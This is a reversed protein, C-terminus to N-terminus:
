DPVRGKVANAFAEYSISGNASIPLHGRLRAKLREIEPPSMKRIALGAAGEPVRYSDWFEDFSSYAVPIRIVSTEVSQLSARAWLAQLADRRSIGTGPMAVAIGLSELARYMPAVPLGGGPLDWMYTSVLGGRKVVRRMERAAKLPDPIFSIALAMAAADFSREAYPLAQADGVRFKALGAGLRSRAYSLQGESPDIGEVAAPACRAILAETFAGNGCGVDLWHLGSPAALWDVFIEGILRSWRGIRREYAAGDAFLEAADSM